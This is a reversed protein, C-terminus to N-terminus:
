ARYIADLLPEKLLDWQYRRLVQGILHEPTVLAVDTDKDRREQLKKLELFSKREKKESDAQRKKDIKVTKVSEKLAAQIDEHLRIAAQTEARQLEQHMLESEKVIAALQSDPVSAHAASLPLAEVVPSAIVAATPLSFRRPPATSATASMYPPPHSSYSPYSPPLASSAYSPVSSQWPSAVPIAVSSSAAAADAQSSLELLAEITRTLNSGHASYVRAITEPHLVGAFM